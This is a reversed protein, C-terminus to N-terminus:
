LTGEFTDCSDPNGSQLGRKLWQVRQDSTGHTFSEPVAYGQAQQQLRDDGISAAARLGEEVDGPDMAQKETAGWVGALCDAQLELLVSLRNGEARGARGQRARVRDATGSLTQIHHGVEHAIVYAQAFDGPAGYNRALEDFFTTDLYISQDRPCYFPGMSSSAAGCGSRGGGRYFELTPPRYQQGSAAFLEGWRDETSALVQCSFRTVEDVGCIQEPTKAGETQQQQPVVAPGGEMLSMPDVGFILSIVILIVLGGCGLGGGGLRFGGGGGIPFGGGSQSGVNSSTRRGGFRM